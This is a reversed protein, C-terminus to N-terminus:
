YKPPETKYLKYHTLYNHKYNYIIRDRSFRSEFEIFKGFNDFRGGIYREVSPPYNDKEPFDKESIIKTWGNNSQIGILTKPRVKGTHFLDELLVLKEPPLTDIYNFHIWGDIDIFDKIKLYWIENLLSVWEKKILEEKTM